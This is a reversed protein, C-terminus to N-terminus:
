GHSKEFAQMADVLAQVDSLELANYMSARYGGVSRHGKLGVIGAAKCLANFADQHSEDNLLFTANMWSRDEKATTGRFLGNRDIEAYLLEAKARNRAEMAVLGGQAEIWRMTLMSVYIPFVPPTNYMSEKAIHTRYDLMTPIHRKVTGLMDERVIVLTVGAPGLNKQAGAYILGFREVPVPRSFMDSSMDCVIPVETEPWWHYQTGYITNNSTIHLYKLGKPIEYGRPIHTFKEAESSALVQVNGYARAEKIANTAWTGTNVYGATDDEGLLNMPVNFFQSSAGGGVFLVKYEDSLGLLRKVLAFSEDMVAVFDAGRHSVELLSLGSGNFDLVASAAQEIVERPLIAPGASFNHKGSPASM